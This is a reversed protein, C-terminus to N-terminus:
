PFIFISFLSTHMLNDGQKHDEDDHTLVLTDISTLKHLPDRSESLHNLLYFLNHKPRGVAPPAYFRKNSAPGGDVLMSTQFYM